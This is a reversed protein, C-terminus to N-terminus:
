TTLPKKDLFFTCESESHQLYAYENGFFRGYGVAVFRQEAKSYYGCLESHVSAAADPMDELELQSETIAAPPACTGSALDYGAAADASPACM